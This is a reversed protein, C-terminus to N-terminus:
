GSQVSWEERQTSGWKRWKVHGDGYLANFGEFHRPAAKRILDRKPVPSWTPHIYDTSRDSIISNMRSGWACPDPSSQNSQRGVMSDIIHISTSPEEVQSENFAAYATLGGSSPSTFGTKIGGGTAANRSYNNATSSTWWGGPDYSTGSANNTDQIMNRAYSLRNVLAVAKSSGDGGYIGAPDAATDSIGCYDMIPTGSPPVLNSDAQFKGPSASPCVFLQESKVYPQIFTPWGRYQGAVLTSDGPYYQDNDDKYQEFGLGIQKLNSQCSSRRANERARGFVPFLISALIAIIAIVVLLEILTFARRQSSLSVQHIMLSLFNLNILQYRRVKDPM